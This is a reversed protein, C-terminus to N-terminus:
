VTQYETSASLLSLAQASVWRDDDNFTVKRAEEGFEKRMLIKARNIAADALGLKGGWHGAFADVSAWEQESSHKMVLQWIEMMSRWRRVILGPSQWYGSQIPHGAPTHWSYLRQGMNNLAYFHDPDPPLLVGASRQVSAFLFLPRQLRPTANEFETSLLVAELTKAMQDKSKAHEAFIEAISKILEKSPNDSVFRLCLKRAINIATAPHFAVLDLARQGDAMPATHADFEDALIRKQYPDHWSEAYTFEGTRPLTVGEAIDQGDAYTWGTFARAAEYVDQDIYGVPAGNLAGPVERWRDYQANLYAGAGLTHLELLERAYNENAPSARSTANNLYSLMATSKAVAELMERFNGFAHARLVDQDYAPLAIAVDEDAESNVSFHDRWFDTVTERLQAPSLTARIMTASVTERSPRIREEWAIKKDWDGLHWLKAIPQDLSTLHRDEKLGKIGDETEYEIKLKASKLADRVDPGDEPGIALQDRVWGSWGDRSTRELDGVGARIGARSVLAAGKPEITM